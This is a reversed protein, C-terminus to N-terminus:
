EAQLADVQAKVKGSNDYDGVNYYTRQLNNLVEIKQNKDPAVEAASAFYPIAKLMLDKSEQMMNSYKTNDREASANQKVELSKNYYMIALNYQANFNKPEKEIATMYDAVADDPNIKEKLCGRAFYYQSNSPDKTIADNLYVLAEENKHAQLYYNILENIIDSEKPYAEFAEKLTSEMNVSDKLQEYCYKARRYTLVGDAPKVSASSKMLRAAKLFYEAGVSWEEAQMGVIGINTYLVTDQPYNAIQSHYYDLALFGELSKKYDKANYGVNGLQEALNGLTTKAEEIKKAAKGVKKGTPGGNADLEKAQEFYTKAQEVGNDAVGHVALQLYLEAATLYTKPDDKTKENQLAEDIAQKAQDWQNLIIMQEAKKVNSSQASASLCSVFLAGALFLVKKM